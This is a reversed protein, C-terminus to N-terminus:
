IDSPIGPRTGDAVQQLSVVVRSKASLRYVVRVTMGNSLLTFDGFNSGYMKVEPLDYGKLGTFSYRYGSIVATRSTYDMSQVIGIRTQTYDSVTLEEAYCRTSLLLLGAALLHITFVCTRM